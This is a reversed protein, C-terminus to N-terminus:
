CSRKGGSSHGSDSERDPAEEIGAVKRNEKSALDIGLNAAAVAQRRSM